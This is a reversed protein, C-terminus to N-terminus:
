LPPDTQKVQALPPLPAASSQDGNALGLVLAVHPQGQLVCTVPPVSSITLCTRPCSALSLPAQPHGNSVPVSHLVQSMRVHLCYCASFLSQQIGTIGRDLEEMAHNPVSDM